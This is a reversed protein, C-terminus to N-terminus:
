KYLCTTSTVSVRVHYGSMFTELVLLVAKRRPSLNEREAPSLVDPGSIGQVGPFKAEVSNTLVTRDGQIVTVTHLAVLM